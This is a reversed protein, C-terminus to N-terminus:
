RHKSPLKTMVQLSVSPQTMEWPDITERTFDRFMETAAVIDPQRLEHRRRNAKALVDGFTLEPIFIPEAELDVARTIEAKEKEENEGDADIPIQNMACSSLLIMVMLLCILRSFFKM